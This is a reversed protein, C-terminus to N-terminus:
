AVSMSKFKLGIPMSCWQFKHDSSLGACAVGLFAGANIDTCPFPLCQSHPMWQLLAVLMRDGKGAEIQKGSGSSPSMNAFSHLGM